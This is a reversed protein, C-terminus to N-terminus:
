EVAVATSGLNGVAALKTAVDEPVEVLISGSNGSAFIGSTGGAPITVVRLGRVVTVQGTTADSLFVTIHDGPHLVALVQSSVALPMIVSGPAAQAAAVFDAATIIAGAPIPGAAMALDATSTIAGDPVLAAPVATRRVDGAGVVTGGPIQAVAVWVDVTPGSRGSAIGALALVCVMACLTALVRRHIM